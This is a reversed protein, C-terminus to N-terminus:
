QSRIQRPCAECATAVAKQVRLPLGEEMRKASLVGVTEADDGVERAMLEFVGEVFPLEFIRARRGSQPAPSSANAFRKQMAMSASSRIATVRCSSADALPAGASEPACRQQWHKASRAVTRSGDLSESTLSSSPAGTVAAYSRQTETVAPSPRM